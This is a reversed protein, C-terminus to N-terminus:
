VGSRRQAIQRWLTLATSPQRIYSPSARRELATAILGALEAILDYGFDEDGDEIRAVAATAIDDFPEIANLWQAAGEQSDREPPFEENAILRATVLQTAVDRANPM